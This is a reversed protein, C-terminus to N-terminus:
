RLGKRLWDQIFSWHLVPKGQVLVGAEAELMSPTCSQVVAGAKQIQQLLRIFIMVLLNFSSKFDIIM